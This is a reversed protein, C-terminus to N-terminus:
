KGPHSMFDNIYTMGDTRTLVVAGWITAWVSGMLGNIGFLGFSVTNIIPKEICYKLEVFNILPQIIGAITGILIAYTSNTIYFSASAVSIGGAVPGLTFDRITLKENLIYSTSISM